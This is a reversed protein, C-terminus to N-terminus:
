GVGKEMRHHELGILEATEGTQRYGCREYFGIAEDRAYLVVRRYGREALLTEAETLLLRGLGRERRDAHVVMQRIRVAAPDDPDPKGIVAGILAETTDGSGGAPSPPGGPATAGAGAVNEQRADDEFLGFHHQSEEGAIDEESLPLGLPERLFGRRLERAAHYEPSDYEIPLVPM